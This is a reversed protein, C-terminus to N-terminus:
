RIQTALLPQYCVRAAAQDPITVILIIRRGMAM